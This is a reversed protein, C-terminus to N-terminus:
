TEVNTSEFKNLLPEDHHLLNKVALNLRHSACGVLSINLKTQVSENVSINDAIIACVNSMDKGYVHLIYTIFEIHENADLTSKDNLHSLTLLKTEFGNANQTPYTAYIATYHTSYSPWDDLVLSVKDPLM